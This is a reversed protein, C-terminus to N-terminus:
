TSAGEIPGANTFSDIIADVKAGLDSHGAAKLEEAVATLDDIIADGEPMRFIYVGDGWESSVNFYLLTPDDIYVSYVEGDYYTIELPGMLGYYGDENVGIDIYAHEVAVIEEIAEQANQTATPPSETDSTYVGETPASCASFALLLAFIVMLPLIRKM